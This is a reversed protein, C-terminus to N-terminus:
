REPPSIRSHTTSRSRRTRIDAAGASAEPFCAIFEIVGMGPVEALIRSTPLFGVAPETYSVTEQRGDGEILGKFSAEDAKAGTVADGAIKATGM